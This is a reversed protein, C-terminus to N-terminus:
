QDPAGSRLVMVSSEDFMPREEELHKGKVQYHIVEAINTAHDGIREINRAIFLLHTCASISRPDEMMYTLLERFLSDYVEDVEADREWVDYAKKVDGYAFADLVDKIMGGVMRAMRPITVLPKVPPIQNLAISRKAMNKAYDGIRELDPAIKLAAVIQRLDAGMPQRLALLRVALEDVEANLDDIEADSEIARQALESDRTRLATVALDLQTEALGGMRSVFGSLRKLEEDYSKVIHRSQARRSQKQAAM